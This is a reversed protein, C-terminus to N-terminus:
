FNKSCINLVSTFKQEFLNIPFINKKNNDFYRGTKKKSSVNEKITLMKKRKNKSMRMYEFFRTVFYM